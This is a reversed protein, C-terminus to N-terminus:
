KKLREKPMAMRWFEVGNIFCRGFKKLDKKKIGSFEVHLEPPHEITGIVLGHNDHIDTFVQKTRVDEIILKQNSM